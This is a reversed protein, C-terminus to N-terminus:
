SRGYIKLVTERLPAGTESCIMHLLEAIQQPKVWKQWDAGPMGERNAPTDITSPVIVSSVVDSDGADANLLEALRFLLSKSLAYAMMNKGAAPEMAPRTGVFVIRGAGKELMHAFFPRAVNYATEFNLTLQDRWVNISTEAIGGMAFGGALLLAADVTKYERIIESAFDQVVAEDALDLTVIHLSGDKQNLAAKDGTERLSVVEAADRAVAIVRFGQELFYRVVVQGLNGAAGTIIVNKM